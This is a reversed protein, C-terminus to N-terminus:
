AGNGNYALRNPSGQADTVVNRTSLATLRSAVASPSSLGELAQLYLVLGVVHPTAMSTGSITNTATTSGIWTSLIDTGPAFIDLVTGFNSYAARANGRQIAGVTIAESASAPSTTSADSDENGAAVVTVVGGNFAATVARNFASSFGGGLSLNVAAKNQRGKSRIDNVAWQYGDLITSTSGQEGAFVKVAIVSAKKAVGYTKSAITGAVHTGHGVTDTFSGGVANYGNSARGEFDVHATNIGTDVVYGFTGSGASTDYVYGSTNPQKHSISALGWTSPSQTTLAAITWIQDEEVEDVDDSNKIQEITADDFQGTYARWTNITFEKEVGTTVNEGEQRRALSRAHVDSVWSLHSTSDAGSKLTVIYKHAVSPLTSPEDQPLPLPAANLAPLLAALAFAAKSFYM